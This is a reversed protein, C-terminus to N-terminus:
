PKSWSFAFLRALLGPKHRSGASAREDPFAESLSRPFRRTTPCGYREAIHRDLDAETLAGIGCQCPRRGQACDDTCGRLPILNSM